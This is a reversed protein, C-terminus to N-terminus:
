VYFCTRTFYFTSDFCTLRTLISIRFSRKWSFSRNKKRDASCITPQRCNSQRRPFCKCSNMKSNTTLFDSTAWTWFHFRSTQPPCSRAARCHRSAWAAVRWRSPLGRANEEGINESFPKKMPGYPTIERCQEGRKKVEAEISVDNFRTVPSAPRCSSESFMQFKWFHLELSVIFIFHVRIKCTVKFKVENKSRTSNQM